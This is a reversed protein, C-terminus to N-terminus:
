KKILEAPLEYNIKCITKFLLETKILQKTNKDITDRYIENTRYFGVSNKHYEINECRIDYIEKFEVAALISVQISDTDFSILIQFDKATENKVKLDLWGEAVTADIGVMKQNQPRVSESSHPTREIVTLPSNLFCLFLINSLQCLGGGYAPVIKNDVLLLGNKYPTKKDANKVLQWFSFIEGPKIVIKNIVKAAIKLNHIKNIQYKIDYGSNYNILPSKTTFLHYELLKEYKNKAYTNSDLRMSIYFFLKRQWTRLPILFPLVQTIQKRKRIKEKVSDILLM